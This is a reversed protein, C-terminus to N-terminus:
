QQTAAKADVVCRFGLYEAGNKESSSAWRVTTRVYALTNLFSGGRMARSDQTWNSSTFEWVNGALDSVGEPTDGAPYSGVNAAAFRGQSRGNFRSDDPHNGWPWVNGEIGRAAREWEFETPLRRGAWLCYATADDWGIGTVPQKPGNFQPWKLYRSPRHKTARVFQDYRENTVEYKDMYFDGFTMLQPRFETEVITTMPERLQKTVIRIADTQLIGIPFTGARLLVMPANDIKSVLRPSFSSQARATLVFLVTSVVTVLLAITRM